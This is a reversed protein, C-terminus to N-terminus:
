GVSVMKELGALFKSNKEYFHARDISFTIYDWFRGDYYRYEKLRAEEVFGAGLHAKLSDDNFEYVETYIKRINYFQFLLHLFRLMALGGFGCSRYKKEIYAMVRIHGDNCAYGYSVLFGVYEGSECEEVIMTDNYNHSLVHEFKKPFREPSNLNVFDFLNHQEEYDSYVRYFFPYDKESDFRRLRLVEM